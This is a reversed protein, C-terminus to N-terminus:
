QAHSLMSRHHRELYSEPIISIAFVVHLNTAAPIKKVKFLMTTGYGGCVNIKFIAHTLHAFLAPSISMAARFFNCSNRCSVIYVAQALGAFDDVKM